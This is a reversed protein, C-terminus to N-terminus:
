YLLIDQVDSLVGQATTHSAADVSKQVLEGESLARWLLATAVIMALFAILVCAYEVTAQAQDAGLRQFMRIM